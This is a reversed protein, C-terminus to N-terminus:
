RFVNPNLQVVDNIGPASGYRMRDHHVMEGLQQAALRWEATPGDDYKMCETAVLQIMTADSPYWPVQAASLQLAAPLEVYDFLLNYAGDPRPWPQLQWRGFQSQLLRLESPMARGVASDYTAAPESLQHVIRLRRRSTYDSKWMWVNDLIRLIKNTIGSNGDGVTISTDGAAVAVSTAERILAPWPWAAAQSDLWGQLWVLARATIADNGGLLLGESIITDVTKVGM